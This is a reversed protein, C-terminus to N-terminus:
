ACATSYVANAIVIQTAIWEFGHLHRTQPCMMSTQLTQPLISRSTINKKATHLEPCIWKNIWPNNKPNENELPMM